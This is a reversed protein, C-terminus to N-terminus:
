RAGGCTHLECFEAMDRQTPALMASDLVPEMVNGKPLHRLGFAHGTEHLMVPFFIAGKTDPAVEIRAQHGGWWTGAYLESPLDARQVIWTNQRDYLPGMEKVFSLRINAETMGAWASVASEIQAIEEESFDNEAIRILYDEPPCACSALLLLALAKVFSRTRTSM